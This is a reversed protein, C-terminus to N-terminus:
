VPMIGVCIISIMDRVESGGMIIVLKIMTGTSAVKCTTSLVNHVPSTTLTNREQKLIELADKATELANIILDIGKSVTDIVGTIKRVLEPIFQAGEISTDISLGAGDNTVSGQIRLSATM